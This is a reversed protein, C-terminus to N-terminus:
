PPSPPSQKQCHFTHSISAELFVSWYFVASKDDLVVPPFPTPTSAAVSSKGATPRIFSEEVIRLNDCLHPKCACALGMFVSCTVSCQRTLLNRSGSMGTMDLHMLEGVTVCDTMRSGIFWRRQAERVLLSNLNVQRCIHPGRSSKVPSYVPQSSLSCTISCVPNRAVKRGVEQM